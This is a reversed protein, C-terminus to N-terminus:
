QGTLLPSKSLSSPSTSNRARRPTCYLGGDFQAQAFELVREVLRQRMRLPHEGPEGVTERARWAEWLAYVTAILVVFAVLVLVGWKQVLPSNKFREFGVSALINQFINSTVLLLAFAIPVILKRLRRM